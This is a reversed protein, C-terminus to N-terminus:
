KGDRSVKLYREEQLQIIMALIEKKLSICIKMQEIINKNIDDMNIFLISFALVVIRKDKKKGM